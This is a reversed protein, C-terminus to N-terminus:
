SAVESAATRDLKGVLRPSALRPLGEENPQHNLVARMVPDYVEHLNFAVSSWALVLLMAWPWLGGARHLGFYRKYTGGQWRLQWAPWWRAAWHGISTATRRAPFTLYVGAFCDLTWLLAVIGFLTAGIEGLALSLHLRYIFLMLNAVGQGIDGWERAGVIAGTYPNVFIQDVALAAEKGSVPDPLPFLFFVLPKGEQRTPPLGAVIAEPYQLAVNQRLEIPDIRYPTLSSPEPLPLRFVTPNIAAELEDNWVLLSGIIGAVLLFGAMVLGLYRHVTVINSRM